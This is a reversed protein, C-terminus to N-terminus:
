DITFTFKHTKLGEPFCINTSTEVEVTYQGAPFWRLGEKYARRVYYDILTKVSKKMYHDVGGLMNGNPFHLTCNHSYNNSDDKNIAFNKYNDVTIKM